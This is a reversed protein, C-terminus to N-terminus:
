ICSTSDRQTCINSWVSVFHAVEGKLQSPPRGRVEVISVEMSGTRVFTLYAMAVPCSSMSTPCFVLVGAITELGM